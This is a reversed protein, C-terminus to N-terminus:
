FRVRQPPFVAGDDDPMDQRMRESSLTLVHAFAIRIEIVVVNDLRELFNCVRTTQAKPAKL